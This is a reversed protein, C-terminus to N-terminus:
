ASRESIWREVNRRTLSEATLLTAAPSGEDRLLALLIHETAICRDGSRLAERLALELVKKSDASFPIHGAVAGGSETGIIAVAASRIRERSGGVGVIAQSALSEQDEILGLVLHESGVHDSGAARAHGEARSVVERAQDVFRSLFFGSGSGKGRDSAFRKQVAQKTVGMCRGIEAWSAGADRARNVFHGVLEDAVQDLREALIMSDTLGQLADADPHEAEVIGILDELNLPSPEMGDVM